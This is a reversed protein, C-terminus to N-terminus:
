APALLRAHHHHFSQVHSVDQDRGQVACLHPVNDISTVEAGITRAIFRSGEPHVTQDAPSYGVLCPGAVSKALAACDISMVAHNMRCYKDFLDANGFPYLLMPAIDPTSQRSILGHLVSLMDGPPVRGDAVMEMLSKLNQQHDTKPALSGLEYDGFWLTLSTLAQPNSAAFMLALAAGGCVGIVHARSWQLAEMLALADLIQAQPSLDDVETCHDGFLGRTEFAAVIGARSLGSIWGASLEVPLGPAGFFLIRRGGPEGLRISSLM